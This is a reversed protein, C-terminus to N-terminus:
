RAILGGRNYNINKGYLRGLSRQIIGRDPDNYYADLKSQQDEPLGSNFLASTILGRINMKELPEIGNTNIWKVTDDSVLGKEALSTMAGELASGGVLAFLSSAQVASRVGKHPIYKSLKPSWTAYLILADILQEGFNDAVWVGIDTAQGSMSEVIAKWVNEEGFKEAFEDAKVKVQDLKEEVTQVAEDVKPKSADILENGKAKAKDKLSPKIADEIFADQEAVSLDAFGEPVTVEGHGEVVIIM